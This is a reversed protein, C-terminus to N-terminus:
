LLQRLGRLLPPFGEPAPRPVNDAARNFRRPCPPVSILAAKSVLGIGQHFSGVFSWHYAQTAEHSPQVNSANSKVINRKIMTGIECSNPTGRVSTANKSLTVKHNRSTPATPEPHSASRIPRLVGSIIEIRHYEIQLKIAPKEGANQNRKRNRASSPMPMPASHGAPAASAISDQGARERPNILPSSCPEHLRPNRRALRM